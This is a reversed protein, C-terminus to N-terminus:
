DNCGEISVKGLTIITVDVIEEESAQDIVLVILCERETLVPRIDGTSVSCPHNVTWM